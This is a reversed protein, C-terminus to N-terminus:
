PIGSLLLPGWSKVCGPTTSRLIFYLLRVQYVTKTITYHHLAAEGKDRGIGSEKYGGFPLTDDVAGPCNVFVSGAQSLKVM